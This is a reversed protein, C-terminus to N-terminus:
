RGPEGAGCEEGRSGGVGSAREILGPVRTMGWGVNRKVSEANKRMIIVDFFDCLFDRCVRNENRGM